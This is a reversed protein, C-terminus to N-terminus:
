SASIIIFPELTSNHILDHSNQAQRRLWSSLIIKFTFLFTSISQQKSILNYEEGRRKETHVICNRFISDKVHYYVECRGITTSSLRESLRRKQADLKKMNSGLDDKIISLYILVAFPILIASLQSVAIPPLNVHDHMGNGAAILNPPRRLSSSLNGIVSLTPMSDVALNNGHTWLFWKRCFKWGM